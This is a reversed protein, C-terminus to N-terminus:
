CKAVNIKEDKISICVAPLAGKGEAGNEVILSAVADEIESRIVRRIDRGGYKGGYSKEAICAYVGDSVTLEIGKERLPERM